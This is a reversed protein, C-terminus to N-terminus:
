SAKLHSSLSMSYSTSAEGISNKWEVIEFDMERALVRLTSTKGTGAPGTMTLIRKSMRETIQSVSCSLARRVRYRKLKGTPGGDFAESLWRRVDEVKRVHM